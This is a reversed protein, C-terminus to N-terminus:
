VKWLQIATLTQMIDKVEDKWPCSPGALIETCGVIYLWASMHVHSCTHVSVAKCGYSHPTDEKHIWGNGMFCTVHLIM